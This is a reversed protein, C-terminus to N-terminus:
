TQVLQSAMRSTAVGFMQHVARELPQDSHVQAYSVSRRGCFAKISDIWEAFVDRYHRLDDPRLHATIGQGTEPDIFRTSGLSDWDSELPDVVHVLYPEHRRARVLDVAREFRRTVTYGGPQYVVPDLLDSIIVVLGPRRGRGVFEGCAAPLDSATEDINVQELQAVLRPWNPLGRLPAFERVVRNSVVAMSVSDLNALALYGIAATLRRAFELKQSGDPNMSPSADLLLYVANDESGQFQRVRLEDHRACLNWDIYRPDDGLTYDSYGTVETGSALTAARRRGLLHRGWVRQAQRHLGACQQQFRTDM